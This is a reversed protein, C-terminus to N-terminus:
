LAQMGSNPFSYHQRTCTSPDTTVLSHPLGHLRPMHHTGSNQLIILLHV